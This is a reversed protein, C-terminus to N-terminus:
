SGMKGEYVVSRGVSGIFDYCRWVISGRRETRRLRVGSSRRGADANYLLEVEGRTEVPRERDEWGAELELEGYLAVDEDEDLRVSM